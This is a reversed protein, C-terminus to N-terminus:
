RYAVTVVALTPGATPPRSVTLTGSNGSLQNGKFGSYGVRVGVGGHEGEVRHWTDTSQSRVTLWVSAPVPRVAQTSFDVVVRDGAAATRTQLGDAAGAVRPAAGVSYGQAFVAGTFRITGGQHGEALVGSAGIAAAVAVAGKTYREDRKFM